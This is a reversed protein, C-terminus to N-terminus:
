TAFPQRSRLFRGHLDRLCQAPPLRNRVRLSAVARSLPHPEGPLSLEPPSSWPRSRCSLLSRLTPPWPSRRPEFSRPRAALWGSGDLPALVRLVAGALTQRDEGRMCSRSSTRSPSPCGADSHGLSCSGWSLRVRPDQFPVAGEQLPRTPSPVPPRLRRGLQEPSSRVGPPFSALSVNRSLTRRPIGRPRSSRRPPLAPLWYPAVRRASFSGAPSPYRMLTPGCAPSRTHDQSVRDGYDRSPGRSFRL